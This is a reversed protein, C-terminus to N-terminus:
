IHFLNLFSGRHPFLTRLSRREFSSVLKTGKLIIVEYLICIYLYRQYYYNDTWFLIYEKEPRADFSALFGLYVTSM